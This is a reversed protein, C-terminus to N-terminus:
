KFGLSSFPVTNIKILSSLFSNFGFELHESFYTKFRHKLGMVSFYLINVPDQTTSRCKCSMYRTEGCIIEVLFTITQINIDRGVIGINLDQDGFHHLILLCSSQSPLLSHGWSQLPILATAFPAGSSGWGKQWPLTCGSASWRCCLFPDAGSGRWAPM